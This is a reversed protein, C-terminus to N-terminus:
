CAFRKQFFMKGSFQLALVRRAEDYAAHTRDYPVDLGNIMFCVPPFVRHTNPLFEM